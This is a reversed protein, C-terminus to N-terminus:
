ASKTLWDAGQGVHLGLALATKVPYTQQYRESGIAPVFSSLAGAHPYWLPPSCDINVDKMTALRQLDERTIMMNHSVKYRVGTDGNENKMLELADVARRITGDGLAYVHLGVGMSDFKVFARAFEETTMNAGGFFGPDGEYAELLLSTRAGPGGDGLIKVYNPHIMESEYSGRNKSQREVEDVSYAPNLTTKCDWSVFVRQELQGEAELLKLSELPVRHGEATQQTTIGYSVFMDFIQHIVKAYEQAAAQPIVRELRQMAQEPLTGTPEGSSPDKEIVVLQSTATERTIGALEIVRSNLWMPHGSQDLLAVPRDPVVEDLLAKDPSDNPFITLLWQGGIIWEKTPHAEAYARVEELIAEPDGLEQLSLNTSGYWPTLFPHSHLDVVGPM